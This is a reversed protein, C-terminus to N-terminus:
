IFATKANERAEGGQWIKGVEITAERVGSSFGGFGRGGDPPVGVVSQLRVFMRRKLAHCVKPGARIVSLSIGSFVVRKCIVGLMLPPEGRLPSVDWHAM